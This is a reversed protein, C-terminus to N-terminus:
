VAASFLCRSGRLIADEHSLCLLFFGCCYSIIENDAMDVGRIEDRGAPLAACSPLLCAVASM